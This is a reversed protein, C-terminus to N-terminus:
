HTNRKTLSLLDGKWTLGVNAILQKPLTTGMPNGNKGWAYCCTAHLRVSNDGRNLPYYELGMGVRTLETGPLVCYDGSVGTRNLDYTTKGFIRLKESPQWSLEGMISHDHLLYPHGTVARNMWDLELACSGFELRHGLAIYSVFKGPLYEQMNVSYLTNFWGHNGTWLLGFAYMDNEKSDFPSQTLQLTLKDRGSPLTYEANIGLEYCPVNNWYESAFYADIPAREYEYGGIAVVVKGGSFSWRDSARYTLYAWDTADFFRRGTDIRNLRYRFAYSFSSNLEGAMRLNLYEGKFGNNSKIARNDVREHTYDVRVEGRLQLLKSDQAVVTTASLTGLLFGLIATSRKM